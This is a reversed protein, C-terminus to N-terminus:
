LIKVFQAHPVEDILIVNEKTIFGKKEAIEVIKEGMLNAVTAKKLLKVAVQEDIKAGGYFAKSIKVKIKKKGFKLVVNLLKKDCIAVVFDQRTNFIRCWFEESKDQRVEQVVHM